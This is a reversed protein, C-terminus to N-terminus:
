NRGSDTRTAPSLASVLARGTHQIHAQDVPERCAAHERLPHTGGCAECWFAMGSMEAWLRRDREPDPVNRPRDGHIWMRNQAGGTWKGSV